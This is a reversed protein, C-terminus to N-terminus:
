NQMDQGCCQPSKIMGECKPCKSVAVNNGEVDIHDHILEEDCKGCKLGTVSMGCSHCNYNIM